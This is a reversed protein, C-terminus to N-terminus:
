SCNKKRICGIGNPATYWCGVPSRNSCFDGPPVPGGGGGPVPSPDESECWPLYHGPVCCTDCSDLPGPKAGEAIVEEYTWIRGGRENRPHDPEACGVFSLSLAFLTALLAVFRNM